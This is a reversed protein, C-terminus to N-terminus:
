ECALGDGDGDGNNGTEYAFWNYIEVEIPNNVDFPGKPHGVTNKKLKTCSSYQMYWPEDGVQSPTTPTASPESWACSVPIVVGNTGLTALQAAHYEPEKPHWPYGDRSDFRAVAHGAEIQMMGIDIGDANYVYRLLRDYRDTDNQGEHLELRLSAGNALVRDIAASAADHGCQGREPTDIGIIRVTGASTRITDGDIVSIFTADLSNATSPPDGAPVERSPTAAAEPPSVVPPLAVPPAVGPPIDDVSDCASLTLASLSLAAATALGTILSKKFNTVSMFAGRAHILYVSSSKQTAEYIQSDSM